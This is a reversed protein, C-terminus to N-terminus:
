LRNSKRYNINVFSDRKTSKGGVRGGSGNKVGIHPLNFINYISFKSADMCSYDGNSPDVLLFYNFHDRTWYNYLQVAMMLRNVGNGPKNDIGGVDNLEGKNFIIKTLKNKESDSLEDTMNFQALLANYIVDFVKRDSKLKNYLTKVTNRIREDGCLANYELEINKSQAIKKMYDNARYFEPSNQSFPRADEGKFEIAYGEKHFRMGGGYVDGHPGDETYKKNDDSLDGLFMKVLIEFKGQNINGKSDDLNALEQLTKKSINSRSLLTYMNTGHIIDVTKIKDINDFKNTDKNYNLYNIYNKIEGHKILINVIQEIKGPTIDINRLAKGVGYEDNILIEKLIPEKEWGKQYTQGQRKKDKYEILKPTGGIKEFKGSGWGMKDYYKGINLMYRGIDNSINPDNIIDQLEKKLNNDLAENITDKLHKM